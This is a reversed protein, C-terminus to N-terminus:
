HKAQDPADKGWTHGFLKRTADFAEFVDDSSLGLYEQSRTLLSFTLAQLHIRPNDGTDAIDQELHEFVKEFHWDLTGEDPMERQPHRPM